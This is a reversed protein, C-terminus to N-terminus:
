LVAAVITTHKPVPLESPYQSYYRADAEDPTLFVVKSFGFNRLKAELTEPTFHSVWPEGLEAARREYPSPSDGPPPAFSLVIESGAPFEAVSRLIADIAPERLYMMVGLWSFFTPEALSFQYRQLGDRLSEHEFDVQAFGANDPMELGAAAIHSRKMGQTGAQDVELIKLTRAWSPQRLSFTDLGAGLIVYQTVGRRVAEALRDEAFRSRLVVHSRLALREPLRYQEATDRIRQLADSGLLSIAVPDDLMRPEADFLQHAARVYAVGVATRSTQQKAM